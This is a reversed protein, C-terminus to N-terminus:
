EVDSLSELTMHDLVVEFVELPLVNLNEVSTQLLVELIVLQIM